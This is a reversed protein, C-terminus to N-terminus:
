PLGVAIAPPACPSPEGMARAHPLRPPVFQLPVFQLPMFRSPMFRSPVSQLPVAPYWAAAAANALARPGTRMDPSWAPQPVPMRKQVLQPARAPPASFFNQVVHPASRGSSGGAAAGGGTSGGVVAMSGGVAVTSGGVAKAGGGAGAGGGVAASGGVAV